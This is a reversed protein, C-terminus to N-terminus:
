LAASCPRPLPVPPAPTTELRRYRGSELGAAVKFLFRRLRQHRAKLDGSLTMNTLFAFAPVKKIGNKVISHQAYSM